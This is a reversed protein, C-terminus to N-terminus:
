IYHFALITSFNVDIIVLVSGRYVYLEICTACKVFIQRMIICSPRFMYCIYM